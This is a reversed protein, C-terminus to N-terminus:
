INFNSGLHKKNMITQYMKEGDINYKFKKMLHTEPNPTNKKKVKNLGKINSYGKYHTGIKEWSSLIFM